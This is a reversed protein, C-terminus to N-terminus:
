RGKGFRKNQLKERELERKRIFRNLRMAKLYQNYRDIDLEGTSLAKKVMCGPEDHHTCDNYYCGESLSKIDEFNNESVFYSSVIRIGPTDIVSGGYELHILERNVTTHRGQSDSVRISNTKFHEEGILKNILTSKGVGSSGIFVSLNDKTINKITEIDENNYASIAIIQNETVEKTKEIYHEIKDTLDKKTLLIITEYNSDYTLSLFDRLKKINFDNNVSICIFVIDINTALIHKEKIKGVDLRELVSKRPCISEIIGLYQDVERFNVYDGIQPYESKLYHIHKYRGSVEMMLKKNDFEVLYRDRFVSIIQGKLLSNNAQKDKLM